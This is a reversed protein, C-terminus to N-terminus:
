AHIIGRAVNWDLRRRYKGDRRVGRYCTLLVDQTARRFTTLYRNWASIRVPCDVFMKTIHRRSSKVEYDALEEVDCFRISAEITNDLAILGVNGNPDNFRVTPGNCRPTPRLAELKSLLGIKASGSWVTVDDSSDSAFLALGTPHGTDSFMRATLSIFDTLREQFVGSRIFSEPILAAVHGCGKLCKELASKYLDDYECDPFQIGRFTASNRALWPPNTVCANFGEPFSRLTDRKIVDHAGPRIDYSAFSQCLGMDKLHNILSNSGAYPELVRVNPLDARAAWAHFADHCFPNRHTYYQGLARKGSHPTPQGRNSKTFMTHEM